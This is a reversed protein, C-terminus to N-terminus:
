ATPSAGRDLTFERGLRAVLREAQWVEVAADEDRLSLADRLARADDQADQEVMRRVHEDGDLMYIRYATM